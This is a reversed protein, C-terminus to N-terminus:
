KGGKRMLLILRAGMLHPPRKANTDIIVRSLTEAPRLIVSFTGNWSEWQSHAVESVM